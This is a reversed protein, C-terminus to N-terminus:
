ILSIFPHVQVELKEDPFNHLVNPRVSFCEIETGATEIKQPLESFSESQSRVM